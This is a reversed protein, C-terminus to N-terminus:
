NNNNKNGKASAANNNANANANNNNGKNKKGSNNNGNNNNNNSAAATTTAAGAANSVAAPTQVAAAKSVVSVGLLKNNSETVDLQAKTGDVQNAAVADALDVKNQQIQSQVAKLKASTSIESAVNTKENTDTQQVAFCGGFPGALANNRCRVTCINGTSATKHQTLSM